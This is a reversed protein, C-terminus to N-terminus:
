ISVLHERVFDPPEFNCNEANKIASKGMKIKCALIHAIWKDLEVFLEECLSRDVNVQLMAMVIAQYTCLKDKGPQKMIGTSVM